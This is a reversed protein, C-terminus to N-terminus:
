QERKAILECFSCPMDGSTLTNEKYIGFGYDRMRSLLNTCNQRHLWPTAFEFKITDITQAIEYGMGEMVHCEFGQVDLKVLPIHLNKADLISDLREIHVQFQLNEPFRQDETDKAFNGIVSNGMNNDAAFITSTLTQGGLGIPILTLRKKYQDDMKSMTSIINFLNMPHPEFAIIKADTSLLMEMVCSGINAGIDLYVSNQEKHLNNWIDPLIVCDTWRGLEQISGRVYVDQEKPHVCMQASEGSTSRFTTWECKFQNSEEIGHEFDVVQWGEGSQKLLHSHSKQSENKKQIEFQLFPVTELLLNNSLVYLVLLLGLVRFYPFNVAKKRPRSALNETMPIASGGNNSNDFTFDSKNKRKM